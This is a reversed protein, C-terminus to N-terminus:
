DAGQHGGHEGGHDGTEMAGGGTDQVEDLTGKVFPLHTPYNVRDMVDFGHSSLIVNMDETAQKWGEPTVQFPNANGVDDAPWPHDAIAEYALTALFQCYGAVLSLKTTLSELGDSSQEALHQLAADVNGDYKDVIDAVRRLLGPLNDPRSLSQQVADSMSASVMVAADRGVQTSLDYEYTFLELVVQDDATTHISVLRRIDGVKGLYHVYSTSSVSTKGSDWAAEWQGSVAPLFEEEKGCFGCSECSMQYATMGNTPTPMGATHGFPGESQCYPCVRKRMAEMMQRNLEEQAEPTIQGVIPDSNTDNM